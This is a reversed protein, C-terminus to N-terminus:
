SIHITSLFPSNLTCPFHMHHRFLCIFTSIFSFPTSDTHTHTTHTVEATDFFNIGLDFATKMCKQAIEPSM